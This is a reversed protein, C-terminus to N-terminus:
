IEAEGQFVKELVGDFMGEFVGEFAAEFIRVADSFRGFHQTAPFFIMFQKGIHDDLLRIPELPTRIWTQTSLLQPVTKNGSGM